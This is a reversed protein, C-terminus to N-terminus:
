AVIALMKLYRGSRGLEGAGYGSSCKVSVEQRLTRDLCKITAEIVEDHAKPAVIWKDRGAEDVFIQLYKMVCVDVRFPGAVDSHAVKEPPKPIGAMEDRPDM